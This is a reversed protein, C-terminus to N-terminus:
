ILLSIGADGAATRLDTDLTALPLGIQKALALYSVDYSTLSHQDMLALAFPIDESAWGPAVQINLAAILDLAATVVSSTARGKRRALGLANSFELPWVAPVVIQNSRASALLELLQPTPEDPM